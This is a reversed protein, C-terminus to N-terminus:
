FRASFSPVFIKIFSNLRRFFVKKYGCAIYGIIAFVVFSALTLVLVLNEKIFEM